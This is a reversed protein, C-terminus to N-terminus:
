KPEPIIVIKIQKDVNVYAEVNDNNECKNMAEDFTLKELGPFPYISFEYNKSKQNEWGMCGHILLESSKLDYVYVFLVENRDFLITKVSKPNFTGCGFSGKRKESIYDIYKNIVLPFLTFSLLLTLAFTTAISLAISWKLVDTLLFCLSLSFLSFLGLAFVKGESDNENINIANLNGLIFYNIYGCGGATIFALIMQKLLDEM